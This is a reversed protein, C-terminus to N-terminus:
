TSVELAYAFVGDKSLYISLDRHALMSCDSAKVLADYLERFESYRKFVSFIRDNIGVDIKYVQVTLM